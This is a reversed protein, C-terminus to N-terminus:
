ILPIHAGQQQQNHEDECSAIATLINAWAVSLWRLPYSLSLTLGAFIEMVVIYFPLRM